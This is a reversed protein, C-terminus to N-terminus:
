VGPEQRTTEARGMPKPERDVDRAVPDAWPLPKLGGRTLCWWEQDVHQWLEILLDDPSVITVYEADPESM